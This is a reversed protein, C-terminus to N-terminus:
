VDFVVKGKWGSKIEDEKIELEHYTPAKIAAKIDHRSLDIKEGYIEAELILKGNMKKIEAVKFKSFLMNEVEYLYLLKELWLILLEEYGINRGGTEINKKEVPKVIRLDCIISFMGGAASEFLEELTSGYFKIGTDSIHDIYTYKKITM